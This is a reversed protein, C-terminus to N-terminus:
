DAPPPPPPPMMPENAQRQAILSALKTKQADTLVGYIETRLEAEHKVRAHAGDVEAQELNVQATAFDSTGPQAADFERRAKRIADMQTHMTERGAEFFGRITQKQSETLGLQHLEHMLPPMPPRHMGHHPMDPPPLQDAQAFGSTSAAITLLAAPILFRKRM